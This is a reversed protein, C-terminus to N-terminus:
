QFKRNGKRVRAGIGLTSNSGEGRALGMSTGWQKIGGVNLSAVQGAEEHVGGRAEGLQCRDDGGIRCYWGEQRWYDDDVAAAPSGVDCERDFRAM